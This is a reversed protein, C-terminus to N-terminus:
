TLLNVPTDLLAPAPSLPSPLSRLVPCSSLIMADYGPPFLFNSAKYRLPAIESSSTGWPLRASRM